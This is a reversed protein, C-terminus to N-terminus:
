PARACTAVHGGVVALAYHECVCGEGKLVREDANASVDTSKKM